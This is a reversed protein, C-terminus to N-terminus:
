KKMFTKKVWKRDAKATRSKSPATRKTYTSLAQLRRFTKLPGSRKVVKRLITHRATKSKTPTYGKLAGTKLEGIGPGHLSTWKGKAGIDRIRRASVRVTKGRRKAVYGKRMITRRRGGSGPANQIDGPATNKDRPAQQIDGPALEDGGRKKRGSGTIPGGCTSM